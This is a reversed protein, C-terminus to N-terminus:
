FPQAGFAAGLKQGLMGPEGFQRLYDALGDTNVIMGTPDQYGGLLNAAKHMLPFRAPIAQPQMSQNGAALHESASYPSALAQEPTLAAAGLAAGGAIPAMGAIQAMLNPSDAKAPDFAAFKSRINAPNTVALHDSVPGGDRINKFIVADHNKSIADSVINNIYDEDDLPISGGMDRTIPNQYRVKAPIINPAKGLNQAALINMMNSKAGALAQDIQGKAPRNKDADYYQSLIKAIGQNDETVDGKVRKLKDLQGVIAPNESFYEQLGNISYGSNKFGRDDVWGPHVQKRVDDDGGYRTSVSDQADDFASLYKKHKEPLADRDFYSGFISEKQYKKPIKDKIPEFLYSEATYPSNTLFFAREASKSGTKSGLKDKRFKDVDENTGHYWDGGFSNRYAQGEEGMAITNHDAVEKRLDGPLKDIMADDYRIIESPSATKLRKALTEALKKAVTLGAM